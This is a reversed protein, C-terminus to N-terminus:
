NYKDGRANQNNVSDIYVLYRGNQIYAGYLCGIIGGVIFPAKYWGGTYIQGAGPLVASLGLALWPSRQMVFHSTDSSVNSTKSSDRFQAPSSQLPLLLVAVILIYRKM